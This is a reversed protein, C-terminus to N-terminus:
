CFQQLIGPPAYVYCRHVIHEGREVRVIAVEGYVPIGFIIDKIQEQLFLFYSGLEMYVKLFTRVRLPQKSPRASIYMFTAEYQRQDACRVGVYATKAGVYPMTHATIAETIVFFFSTTQAWIIAQTQLACVLIRPRVYCRKSVM